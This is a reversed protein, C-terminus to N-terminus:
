LHVYLDVNKGLLIKEQTKIENSKKYLLKVYDTEHKHSGLYYYM